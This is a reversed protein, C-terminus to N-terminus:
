KLTEFARSISLKSFSNAMQRLFRLWKTHADEGRLPSPITSTCHREVEILGEIRQALFKAAYLNLNKVENDPVVEVNRICLKKKM